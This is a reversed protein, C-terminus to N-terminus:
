LFLNDLVTMVIFGFIVGFTADDQVEGM